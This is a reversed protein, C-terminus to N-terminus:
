LINQSIDIGLDDLVKISEIAYSPQADAGISFHGRSNVDLVTLRAVQEANCVLPGGYSDMSNQIYTECYEKAQALGMGTASRIDKIATIKKGNIMVHLIVLYRRM